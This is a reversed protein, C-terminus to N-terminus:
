LYFEGLKIRKYLYETMIKGNKSLGGNELDWHQSFDHLRRLCELFSWSIGQYQKKFHKGTKQNKPHKRTLTESLCIINGKLEKPTLLNLSHDTLIRGVACKRGDKTRYLCSDLDEPIHARRSPDEGYFKITERLLDMLRYKQFKSM